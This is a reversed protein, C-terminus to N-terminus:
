ASRASSRPLGVGVAGDDRSELLVLLLLVIVCAVAVVALWYAARALARLVGRDRWGRSM